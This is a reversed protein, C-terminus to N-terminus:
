PADLRRVFRHGAGGNTLMDWHLPTELAWVVLLTLLIAMAFWGTRTPRGGAFCAAWLERRHVLAWAAGIALLPRMPVQFRSLSFLLAHILASHLVFISAFVRLPTSPMTLLGLCGGGLIVVGILVSSVVLLPLAWPPSHPGYWGNRLHRLPFSDLTWLHTGEFVCAGLYRLPNRAVHGAGLQLARRQAFAPDRQAVFGYTYEDLKAWHPSWTDDKDHFYTYPDTGILFNYAGNTDVLVFAGTAKLNRFSWPLVVLLAGMAFLCSALLPRRLRQWAKGEGDRHGRWLLWGVVFPAATLVVARALGAAGLFLGALLWRVHPTPRFGPLMLLGLMSWFLFLYLTESWLLHSFAILVPDFALLAAAVLAVGAGLHRRAVAFVLLVTVSSLWVQGVRVSQLGGGLKAVIAIFTPYAPPRFLSTYEGQNLIAEALELYATEDNRPPLRDVNTAFALKIATSVVLIAMLIGLTRRSAGAAAKATEEMM